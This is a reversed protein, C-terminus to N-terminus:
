VYGLRTARAREFARRAALKLITRRYGNEMWLARKLAMSGDYIHLLTDTKRRLKVARLSYQTVFSTSHMNM